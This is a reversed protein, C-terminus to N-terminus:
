RTRSPLEKSASKHLTESPSEGFKNRYAVAFRGLHAFGWRYATDSVTTCLAPNSLDARVSFASRVCIAPRPYESM